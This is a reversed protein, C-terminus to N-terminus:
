STFDVPCNLAYDIAQSIRDEALGKWFVTWNKTKHMGDCQKVYWHTIFKEPDSRWFIKQHNKIIENWIDRGIGLGRAETGVAFKTLYTMDQFDKLLAAGMYNEEIYFHQIPEQFFADNIKREFSMELLRRLSEPDIGEWSHFTRIKSGTQILTGAGKVTFLERLLNNPSVISVFIKHPCKEILAQCGKLFGLQESTIGSSALRLMDFRLNVISIPHETVPDIIGGARRLFIIKGTRLLNALHTLEHVLDLDAGVQLLPLLRQHIRKKIFDLKEGDSLEASLFNMALKAKKFYSEIDLSALTEMSGQIVVVPYLNLRMLYRIEFLIADVEDKLSDLDIVVIAFSEPRTSTFLKLYFEADRRHGVSNMFRLVLDQPQTPRKLHIVDTM